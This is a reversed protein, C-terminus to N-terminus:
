PMSSGDVEKGLDITKNDLRQHYRETHYHLLYGM